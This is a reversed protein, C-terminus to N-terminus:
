GVQAPSKAKAVGIMSDRSVLAMLQDETMGETGSPREPLVMYRIDSNSDWVRVEVVDDLELGFEKLVARPEIVVRARYAHSKYWTPPLGLVPWPYCSCLTCVVVNQIDPTNGLVVIEAGQAGTYGFEAIAETGNELLRTRYEPDVWAHAVVRAGNLPGIDQEYAQVRADVADSAILGKEVLLSEIARARIAAYSEPEPHHQGSM